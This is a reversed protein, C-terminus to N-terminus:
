EKSNLKLSPMKFHTPLNFEDEFQLAKISVKKIILNLIAMNFEPNLKKIEWDKLIDKVNKSDENIVITGSFSFNAISPNYDISYNWKILLFSEKLKSNKPEEISEINMSSNIKLGDLNSNMKEYSIKTFNFSVLKMTTIFNM